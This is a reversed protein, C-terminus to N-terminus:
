PTAWLRLRAIEPIMAPGGCTWARGDSPSIRTHQPLRALAPHRLWAQNLSEQDRRYQSVVLTAPPDTLLRELSIQGRPVPQQAFGAARLWQAALGDPAITLGGGAIFLAPRPAPPAALTRDLSAILAAGAHPRGLAAAVARIQARVDALTGPEPLDLVAIGLRRAAAAAAPDGRSTLVLDPALAVVDTLRGRNTALGRARGALTSEAPDAGLRSVSVLQGPAALALALEDTCLNLSAVRMPAAAAPAALLMALAALRKM